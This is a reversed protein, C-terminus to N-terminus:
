RIIWLLEETGGQAIWFIIYVGVVALFVTVLSYVGGPLNEATLQVPSVRPQVSLEPQPQRYFEDWEEEDDRDQSRKRTQTGPQTKPQSYFNFRKASRLFRLRRLLYEEIPVRDPGFRMVAILMAAFLIIVGVAMRGLLPFPLFLGTLAVAGGVILVVMDRDQPMM